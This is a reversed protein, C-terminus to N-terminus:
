QDGGADTAHVVIMVQAMAISSAIGAISGGGHSVRWRFRGPAAEVLSCAADGDDWRVEPLLAREHLTAQMAM